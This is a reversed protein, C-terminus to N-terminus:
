GLGSYLSVERVDVKGTRDYSLKGERGEVLVRLCNDVFKLSHELLYNNRKNTRQIKESLAELIHRLEKLRDAYRLEVRPIIESLTLEGEVDLCRSLDKSKGCREKELRKTETVISEVEENSLSVSLIDGRLISAQQDLLAELLSQFAKVEREIVDTLDKVVSEMGDNNNDARKTMEITM